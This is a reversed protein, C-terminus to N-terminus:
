KNSPPITGGMMPCNMRGGKAHQMMHMHVKGDMKEHMGRISVRQAVMETVVAATANAKSDGTTENMTSVLLDLKRDMASQTDKMGSMDAMMQQCQGMTPGTKEQVLSDPFYNSSTKEQGFAMYAAGIALATLAAIGYKKM